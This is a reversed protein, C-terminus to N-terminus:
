MSVLRSPEQGAAALLGGAAAVAVGVVLGQRWDVASPRDEPAFVEPARGRWWDAPRM